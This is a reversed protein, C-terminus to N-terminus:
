HVEVSTMGALQKTLERDDLGTPLIPTKPENQALEALNMVEALTKLVQRQETINKSDVAQEYTNWLGKLVRSQNELFSVKNIELIEENARYIYDDISRDSIGWSSALRLIECRQKGYLLWTKVDKLRQACVAKGPRAAM